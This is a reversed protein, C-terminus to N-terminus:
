LVVQRGTMPDWRKRIEDSHRVALQVFSNVSTYMAFFRALVASMMLSSGGVFAEEDFELSVETGRCFGRWAQSGIHATVSRASLNAIGRIQAYDRRNESAFLTLMERLQTCGTSGDVLSQHNLTLLSVLRWLTESDM